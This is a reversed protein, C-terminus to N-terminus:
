RRLKEARKEKTRDRYSVGYEVSGVIQMLKSLRPLNLATLEDDIEPANLFGDQATNKWETGTAGVDNLTSVPGLDANVQNTLSTDAYNLGPSFVAGTAGNSSM